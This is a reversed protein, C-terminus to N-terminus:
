FVPVASIAVMEIREKIKNEPAQHLHHKENTSLLNIFLSFYRFALYRFYNFFLGPPQCKGLNNTERFFPLHRGYLQSNINPEEEQAKCGFRKFHLFVCPRVPGGHAGLFFIPGTRGHSFMNRLARNKFNKRQLM